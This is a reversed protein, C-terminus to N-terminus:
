AQGGLESGRASDLANLRKQIAALQVRLSDLEDPPAPARPEEDGADNPSDKALMVRPPKMYAWLMALPWLLGGFVLSIFCLAQIADKQPHGRREAVREPWVHLIWLVTVAVIPVIVVIFWVLVDAIKDETESSALVLPSHAAAMLGFACSQLTRRVGGRFARAHHGSGFFGRTACSFAHVRMNM